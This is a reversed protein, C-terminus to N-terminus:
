VLFFIQTGCLSACIKARSMDANSTTHRGRDSLMTESSNLFRTM